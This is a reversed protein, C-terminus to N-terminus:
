VFKDVETTLMVIDTNYLVQGNVKVEYVYKKLVGAVM